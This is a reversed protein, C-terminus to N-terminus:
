EDRIAFVGKCVGGVRALTVEISLVSNHTVCQREKSGGAEYYYQRGAAGGAVFDFLFKATAHAVRIFNDTQSVKAPGQFLSSQKLPRFVSLGSTEHFAEVLANRPGPDANVFYNSRGDRRVIRDGAVIKRGPWDVRIVVSGANNRIGHKRSIRVDTETAAVYRRKNGAATESNEIGLLFSGDLKWLALM